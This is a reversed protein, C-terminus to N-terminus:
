HNLFPQSAVACLHVHNLFKLKMENVLNRNKFVGKGM